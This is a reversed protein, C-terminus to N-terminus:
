SEVDAVGCVELSWDKLGGSQLCECFDAGKTKRSLSQLPTDIRQISTSILTYNTCLLAIRQISRETERVRM